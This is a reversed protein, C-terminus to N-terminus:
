KREGGLESNVVDPMWSYVAVNIRLDPLDESIYLCNGRIRICAGDLCWIYGNRLSDKVAGCFANNAHFSRGQDTLCTLVGPGSLFSEENTPEYRIVCEFDSLDAVEFDEPERFPVGVAM